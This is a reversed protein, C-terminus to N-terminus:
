RLQRRSRGAPYRLGSRAARPHHGTSTRRLKWRLAAPSCRALSCSGPPVGAVEGVEGVVRIEPTAWRCLAESVVSTLATMPDVSGDSCTSLEVYPDGLQFVTHVMVDRANREGLVACSCVGSNRAIRSSIRRRAGKGKVCGRDSRHSRSVLLRTTRRSLPDRPAWMAPFRVDDDPVFYPAISPSCSWDNGSWGTSARLGAGAAWVCGTCPSPAVIPVQRRPTGGGRMRPLSSRVPERPIGFACNLLMRTNWRDCM